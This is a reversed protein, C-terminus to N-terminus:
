EQKAGANKKVKWNFNYGINLNTYLILPVGHHAKLTESLGISLRCPFTYNYGAEVLMGMKRYDYEIPFIGKYKTQQGWIYSLGAGVSVEHHKQAVIRYTGSFDISKMASYFSAEKYEKYAAESMFQSAPVTQPAYFSNISVWETYGLRIGIRSNFQHLYSIGLQSLAPRFFGKQLGQQPVVFNGGNIQIRETTQAQSLLVSSLLYSSILIKKM